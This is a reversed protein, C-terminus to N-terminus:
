SMHNTIVRAVDGRMNILSQIVGSPVNSYVLTNETSKPSLYKSLEPIEGFSSSVEFQEYFEYTKAHCNLQPYSDRTAGAQINLATGDWLQLGCCLPDQDWTGFQGDNMYKTFAKTEMTNRRVAVAEINSTGCIHKNAEHFAVPTIDSSVDVIAIPKKNRNM